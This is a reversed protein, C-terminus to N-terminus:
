STLGVKMAVPTLRGDTGVLEVVEEHGSPFGVNNGSGGAVTGRQSVRFSGSVSIPYKRRMANDCWDVRICRGLACVM